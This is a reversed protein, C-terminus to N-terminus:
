ANPTCGLLPSPESSWGSPSRPRVAVGNTGRPTRHGISRDFSGTATAALPEEEVLEQEHPGADTGPTPPAEGVVPDGRQEVGHVTSRRRTRLQDQRQAADLPRRAGDDREGVRDHPGEDLVDTPLCRENVGFPEV